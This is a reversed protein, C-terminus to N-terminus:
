FLEDIPAGFPLVPNPRGARDLYAVTTDVGLHRYLTALVDQPRKPNDKPEAGKADSAGVVRGGQIGGGALAASFVNPWHDRGAKENV